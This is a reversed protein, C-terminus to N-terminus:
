CMIEFANEYYCRESSFTQVQEARGGVFGEVVRCAGRGGADGGGWVNSVTECM